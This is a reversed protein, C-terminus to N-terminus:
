PASQSADKAYAEVDQPSGVCQCTCSPETRRLLGKLVRGPGVEYFRGIGLAAMTRQCDVWRVPETVQRILLRRIADADAVPQGTVNAVIPFRPTALDLAEILPTLKDAAPQMLPTHFAGAVKLEVVKRAGMEKCLEAAAAAPEREGSIVVQGPSNYNAPWARGGTKQCAERCAGEVQKDSLAIISFMTGPNAECAEQMFRGRERVLRVAQRLDLAGAAVLATYEGLSLGAAAAAPPEAGAAEAMARLAAVSITLIAPQAVDSRDLEEAPGEFCIRDLEFGLEDNAADFVERAAASAEALAKGMGVKQAGQGPFLLGIENM